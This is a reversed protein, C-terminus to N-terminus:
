IQEQDPFLTVDKMTNDNRKHCDIVTRLKKGDKKAVCLMPMAQPVNAEKWWGAEKYQQVKEILQEKMADPCRPLHYNYVKEEDILPIKHNVEQFPPLKAPAGTIIDTAKIEWDARLKVFLAEKEKDVPPPVYQQENVMSAKAVISPNSFPQLQKTM